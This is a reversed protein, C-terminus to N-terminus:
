FIALNRMAEFTSSMSSDGRESVQEGHHRRWEYIVLDLEQDSVHLQDVFLAIAAGFTPRAAENILVQGTATGHPADPICHFRRWQRRFTIIVNRPAAADELEQALDRFSSQLMANALAAPVTPGVSLLYHSLIDHVLAIAAAYALEAAADRAGRADGVRAIAAAHTLVLPEADPPPEGPCHFLHHSPIRPHLVVHPALFLLSSLPIRHFPGSKLM